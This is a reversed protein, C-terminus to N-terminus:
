RLHSYSSTGSYESALLSYFRAAVPERNSVAFGINRQVRQRAAFLFGIRM